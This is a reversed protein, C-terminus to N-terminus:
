HFLSEPFEKRLLYQYYFRYSENRSQLAKRGGWGHRGGPYIMLEFHKDRDELVSVFQVINQMHVNADMTGHVIRLLGRYKDAYTMVSSSEYGEPNELPMGMYRETYHSDYLRWDTVSSSAIGYPFCDAGETLALCTVYGGYSAGTICVRESDVFPRSRLWRAVECYDNMEWKGLHLHMLAVGEKGFHGSGRHDMTMQIMGEQAWWQPRIGGWSDSVTVSGPGGYVSILVPYKKSSDFGVPLTWSVPLDYGDSTRVRFVESKGLDYLDCEATRTDGLNRIFGGGTSFLAMRSPTSINSYTTVFYSGGESLRVSHTFDGSTLRVPDGGRLDTKYFDTRLSTEKRATFYARGKGEHVFLLDGVNWKGQTIQNIRQGEPSYLYLHSWGDQDSKVIFGKGEKLFYVSELWDVWSQQHEVYIDKKGGTAPDVAFLKLTDQRRNMWQVLLQRNDPTWFPTGFYQDDNQNFDAWVVPGGGVPVIGVKVGPNPDGVKPYRQYEIRGHVGEADFLPFQPVRSDDFRYFALYRSDPSWWFARYQTSRGLIEEMYVWSSWGNYVVDSGDTTYRTEKGSSLEVSYLDAERTFAVDNGDPSLTPNKEEGPTRTLRKFERKRVDLFYLDGEKVYVLHTLDKNKSGPNSLNIGSDVLAKYQELDSFLKEGGSIADVAYVKVREDGERKKRELYHSDDTWGIIDPLSRTLKPEAGKFVQEYTLRKKEQPQATALCALLGLVLCSLCAFRHQLPSGPIM